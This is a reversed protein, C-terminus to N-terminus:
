AARWFPGYCHRRPRTKPRRKNKKGNGLTYAGFQGSRGNGAAGPNPRRREANWIWANPPLTVGKVPPSPRGRPLRYKARALTIDIAM